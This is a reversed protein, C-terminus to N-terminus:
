QCGAADFGSPESDTSAINGPWTEAPQLPEDVYGWANDNWVVTGASCEATSVGGVVMLGTEGLCPQDLIEVSATMGVPDACALEADGDAPVNTEASEVTEGADSEATTDVVDGTDSAAEDSSSCSAVTLLAGAFLALTRQMRHVYSECLLV